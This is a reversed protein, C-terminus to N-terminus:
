NQPASGYLGHERIYKLVGPPVGVPTEGSALRARIESSSVPMEIQDLFHLSIEPPSDFSCGPRNAVVFRVRAAVDRWRHWTRIEAFADAGIIFFLEDEPAMSQRIKEITGISYSLAGGAELDSAEFRPDGQCAIRTMELRDAYSAHTAGAKHPPHGAPIFLIRDLQFRAAAERAVALHANHIPDFTGGFIALKV